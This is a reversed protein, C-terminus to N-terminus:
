GRRRVRREETEAARKLAQLHQDWFRELYARLELLGEPRARYLRQTGHRRESILGADKLVGLHQSIAPRSISFNAAIRGANLERKAVLSLIARRNPEALARLVTDM